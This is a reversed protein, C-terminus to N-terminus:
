QPLASLAVAQFARADAHQALGVLAVRGIRLDHLHERRRELIQLAGAGHDDIGHADLEILDPPRLAGARAAAELVVDVAVERRLAVAHRDVAELLDDLRPPEMRRHLAPELLRLLARSFPGSM